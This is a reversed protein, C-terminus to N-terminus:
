WDEGGYVAARITELREQNEESLDRNFPNGRKLLKTVTYLRVMGSRRPVAWRMEGDLSTRVLDMAAFVKPQDVKVLEYRRSM